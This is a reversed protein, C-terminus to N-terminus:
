FKFAVFSFYELVIVITSILILKVSTAETVSRVSNTRLGQEKASSLFINYQKEKATDVSPKKPETFTRLVFGVWNQHINGLLNWIVM